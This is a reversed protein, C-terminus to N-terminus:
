RMAVYFLLAVFHCASGGLVFLHWLAHFDFKTHINPRKLTYIVGGISYVIGGAILWALGGASLNAFLPRVNFVVM